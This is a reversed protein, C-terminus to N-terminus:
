EDENFMTNCDPCKLIYGDVDEFPGTANCKPCKKEKILHENQIVGEIFDVPDIM